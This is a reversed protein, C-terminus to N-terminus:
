YLYFHFSSSGKRYRKYRVQLAKFAQNSGCISCDGYLPTKVYIGLLDKIFEPVESLVKEYITTIAKDYFIEPLNKRILVCAANRLQRVSVTTRKYVNYISKILKLLDCSVAYKSSHKKVAKDRLGPVNYRDRLIFMWAYLYFLSLRLGTEQETVELIDDNYDM